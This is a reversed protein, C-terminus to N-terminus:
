HSVFKNGKLFFRWPLSTGKSIGIRKSTGIRGADERPADYIVFDGGVPTRNDKKTIGFAQCFKAPGSCLSKVDGVNRRRRMLATGETPEVARILVAGVGGKNTTINACHYMGYTFYVYWHGYTDRMPVSRPTIRFGHSAPDTTYAETEVIIGACKGKRVVKGLLLPALEVADRAFWSRPLPRM